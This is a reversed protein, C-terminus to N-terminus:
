LEQRILFIQFHHSNFANHLLSACEISVPGIADVPFPRETENNNMNYCNHFGSSILAETMDLLVHRTNEFMAFPSARLSSVWPHNFTFRQLSSCVWNKM